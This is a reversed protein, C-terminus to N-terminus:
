WGWYRVVAGGTDSKLFVSSKPETQITITENPHLEGDITAGDWSIQINQTSSADSTLTIYTVDPVLLREVYLNTTTYEEYQTAGATIRATVQKASEAWAM